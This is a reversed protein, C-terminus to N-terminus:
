SDPTLMVKVAGEKLANFAKDFEPLPFRHTIFAELDIRETELLAVLASWTSWMRRGFVGRITLGRKNISKAVDVEVPVGPHGVTVLTGERRITNFVWSYVAPAGSVEIAVDVGGRSRTLAQVEAVVDGHNPNIAVAGLNRAAELRAENIDFALVRSASAISALACTMLGIPGCGVVAVTDGLRLESRQLAHMAVGAPELLAGAEFTLHKPLPYLISTPASVLSAFAGDRDIGLISLSECNHANGTKCAFCQNCPIHTEFAVCDGVEFGTVDPSVARIIGAAEHGLVRPFTLPFNKAGEDWEFFHVDTGCIAATKVEVLVENSKLTPEPFDDRYKLGREPGTKLLAEM